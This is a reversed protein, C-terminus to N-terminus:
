RVSLRAPVFAPAAALPSALGAGAFASEAGAALPSDFAALVADGDVDEDDDDEDDEDDDDEDDEDDDEDDDALGGAM